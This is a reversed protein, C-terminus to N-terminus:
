ISPKLWVMGAVLNGTPTTTSYIPVSILKQNVNTSGIMLNWNPSIVVANDAEAVQGFAVGKGGSKFFMTYAATSMDAIYTTTSFQDTIVFKVTYSYQTNLNGNGFVCAVGSTASTSIAVYMSDDTDHQKYYIAYSLVANQSQKNEDPCPSIIVTANCKGYTGNDDSTGNSACRQVLINNLSPASYQRVTISLSTLASRGRTDTVRVTYEISGSGNITDTTFDNTTGIYGDGIVSYSTISAGYSSLATTRLRVKSKGQVYVGWSAPVVNNIMTETFSSIVPVVTAPVKVTFNYIRQGVLGSGNFTKLTISASASDSSTIGYIWSLPVTFDAYGIGISVNQTSNYTTGLQWYLQHSLSSLHSNSITVRVVSGADVTTNSLAGTSLGFATTYEVFLKITCGSRFNITSGIVGITIRESVVDLISNDLSVYVGSDSGTSDGTYALVDSTGYAGIQLKSKSSSWTKYSSISLTASNVTSGAPVISGRSISGSLSGGASVEVNGGSAVSITFTVSAM